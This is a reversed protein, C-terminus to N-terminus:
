VLEDTTRITQSYTETTVSQGTTRAVTTITQSYTQAVATTKRAAVDVADTLVGVTGAVAKGATAVRSSGKVTGFSREIFRSAGMFVKFRAALALCSGSVKRRGVFSSRATDVLRPAFLSTGCNTSRALM